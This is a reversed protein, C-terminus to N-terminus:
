REQTARREVARALEVDLGERRIRQDIYLLTSVTSTIPTTVAAVLVQALGVIVMMVLFGSALSGPSDSSTAFVALMGIMTVPFMLAGSAFGVVLSTVLQIGFLRWFAGRSLAWSRRLSEIVGIRELILASTALGLRVYVFVFVPALVLGGLVALAGDLQALGYLALAVLGLGALWILGTVLLFLLLRGIQPRLERWAEGITAREGIVARSVVVCLVLTAASAFLSSPVQVLNLLPSSGNDPDSLDGLRQVGGTLLWGVFPLVLLLGILQLALSLGITARPNFRLIKFGAGLIDGLFLPRLPVIGPNTVMAM